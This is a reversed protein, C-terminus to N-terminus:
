NGKKLLVVFKSGGGEGQEVWVRGEHANVIEKVISLGLGTGEAKELFIRFFKDFIKEKMDEPVGPGQDLFELRVFEDARYARFTITSGSLSHKFANDLLNILVEKILDRDALVFLFGDQVDVVLEVNKKRSEEKYSLVIDDFISKLDFSEKKLPMKGLELKILDLMNATLRLLRNIEKHTVELIKEAEPSVGGLLGDRLCSINERVLFLPNKIEHAVNAVFESKLADDVRLKQNARELDAMADKLEQTRVFVAKELRNANDRLEDELFRQRTMDMLIGTFGSIKKEIKLPVISFYVFVDRGTKHRCIFDGKASDGKLAVSVMNRAKDAYQDAIILMFSKGLMEDAQYGFIDMFAKNVFVFSGRDDVQYIGEVATDAILHYKHEQDLAASKAEILCKLDHMIVQLYKKRGITLGTASMSVPVVGKHSDLVHTEMMAAGREACDKFFGEHKQKDEASFFSFLNKGAVATKKAGVLVLAGPNCDVVVGDLADIIFIAGCANDFLNKYKKNQLAAWRKLKKLRGGEKQKSRVIGEVRALVDDPDLPKIMYDVVGDRFGEITSEVSAHGTMIILSTNKSKFKFEKILGQGDMDNLNKDLFAVTPHIKKLIKKTEKGSRATFIRYKRTNFLQTYEKLFAEDDDVFLVSKRPM